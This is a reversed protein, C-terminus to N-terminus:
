ARDGLVLREAGEEGEMGSLNMDNGTSRILRSYILHEWSGREPEVLNSSHSVSSLLVTLKM